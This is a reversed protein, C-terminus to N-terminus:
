YNPNQIDNLYLYDYSAVSIDDFRIAISFNEAPPQGRSSSFSCQIQKQIIFYKPTKRM